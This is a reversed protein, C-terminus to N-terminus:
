HLHIWRHVFSYRLMVATVPEFSGAKHSESSGKFRLMFTDVSSCFQIGVYCCATMPEFSGAKHSELSGKFRLTFTDVLSSRVAIRM